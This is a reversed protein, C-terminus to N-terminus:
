TNAVNQCSSSRKLSEKVLAFIRGQLTRGEQVVEYGCDVDRRPRTLGVPREIQPPTADAHADPRGDEDVAQRLQHPAPREM